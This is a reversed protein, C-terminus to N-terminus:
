PNRPYDTCSRTSSGAPCTRARYPQSLRCGRAGRGTYMQKTRKRTDINKTALSSRILLVVLLDKDLSARRMSIRHFGQTICADHSYAPSVPPNGDPVGVFIQLAGFEHVHEGGNDLVDVGRLHNVGLNTIETPHMVPEAHAGGM